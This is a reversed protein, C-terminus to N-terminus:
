VPPAIDFDRFGVNAMCKQGRRFNVMLDLHTVDTDFILRVKSFQSNFYDM